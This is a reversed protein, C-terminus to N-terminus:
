SCLYSVEFVQHGTLEVPKLGRDQSLPTHPQSHPPCRSVLIKLRELCVVPVKPGVGAESSFFLLLPM